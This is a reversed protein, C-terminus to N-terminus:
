ENSSWGSLDKDAVHNIFNTVGQKTKFTDYTSWKSGLSNKTYSIRYSEHKEVYVAETIVIRDCSVLLLMLVIISLLKKKM